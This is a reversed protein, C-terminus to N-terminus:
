KRDNKDGKPRRIEKVIADVFLIAVGICIASDAVNFVPWHWNGVHFDIFDVVFGFVV